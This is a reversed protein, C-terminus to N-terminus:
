VHIFYLHIVEFYNIFIFDRAWEVPHETSSDYDNRRFSREKEAHKQDSQTTSNKYKKKLQLHIWAMKIPSLRYFQSACNNEFSSWFKAGFFFSNVMYDLYYTQYFSTAHESKGRGEGTFYVTYFISHFDNKANKM